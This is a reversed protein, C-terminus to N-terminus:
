SLESSDGSCTVRRTRTGNKRIVAQVRDFMIPSIIAPHKGIARIKGFHVKGVYTENKLIWAVGAKSWRKGNRTLKENENLFQIVGSISRRELYERFIARVVDSEEPEIELMGAESKGSCRDRRYGYPVTGSQHRGRSAGKERGRLLRETANEIKPTEKAAITAKPKIALRQRLSLVAIGDRKLEAMIDPLKPHAVVGSRTLLIDCAKPSDVYRLIEVSPIVGNGTEVATEEVTGALEAGNAECWAASEDALTADADISWAVVRASPKGGSVSRPSAPGRATDTGTTRKNTM